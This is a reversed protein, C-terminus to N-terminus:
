NVTLPISISVPELFTNGDAGTVTVTVTASGSGVATVSGNNVSVVSADSTQWILVCNSAVVNNVSVVTEMDAIQGVTLRSLNPPVEM